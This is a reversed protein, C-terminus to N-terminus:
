TSNSNVKTKPASQRHETEPRTLQQPEPTPIPWLTEATKSGPPVWRIIPKFGSEGEPPSYYGYLKKENNM